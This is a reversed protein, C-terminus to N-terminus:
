LYKELEDRVDKYGLMKVSKGTKAALAAAAGATQGILMTNAQGRLFPGRAGSEASICKGTGIIVNDIKRPLFVRYPLGFAKDIVRVGRKAREIATTYCVVDDFEKIEFADKETLMYEGDIHRSLRVGMNSATRTIFAKEFGPLIENLLKALEVARERAELTAISLKENDNISDIFYFNSNVLVRNSGKTGFMGLADLNVGLGKEKSYKGEKIAQQLISLDSGGGHPIHFLGREYWNKLFEEFPIAIDREEDFEDPHEKYYEITKELDVNGMEFVLSCSHSETELCPADAYYAIDADGTSDVITKAFVAQRGEKNEIILGKVPTLGDETEGRITDSVLTELMIKVDAEKLMNFLLVQMEDANNPIQPVIHNKWGPPIVGKKGLQEQVEYSIGAIVKKNSKTFYFNSVSAMMASVAVGGLNGTREILLTKIGMRGSQIAAACGALGAGAVIVDYEGKVKLTKSPETYTKM